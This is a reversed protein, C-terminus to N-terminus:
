LASITASLYCVSACRQNRHNILAKTCPPKYFMPLSTRTLSGRIKRLFEGHTYQRTTVFIKCFRVPLGSTGSSSCLFATQRAGQGPTWRLLDLPPLKSGKEILQDVTQLGTATPLHHPRKLPTHLIYVHKIPIGAATASTLATDLLPLCTLLAKCKVAKLQHTLESTSYATNIHNSVGNLRHTAWTATLTDIQLM